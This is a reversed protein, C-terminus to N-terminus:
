RDYVLDQLLMLSGDFDFTGVASARYECQSEGYICDLHFIYRCLIRITSSSLNNCFGNFCIRASLYSTDVAHLPSSASAIMLSVGTSRTSRSIRSGPISPISVSVAMRSLSLFTKTIMIVANSSTLVTMVEM